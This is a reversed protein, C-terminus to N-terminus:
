ASGLRKLMILDTRPAWDGGEEKDEETIVQQGVLAYASKEYFRVARANSGLVKLWIREYGQEIVKGEALSLLTRALGSGHAAEHVYLRSVYAISGAKGKGKDQERPNGAASDSEGNFGGDVPLDLAEFSAPFLYQAPIGEERTQILGVIPGSPPADDGALAVHSVQGPLTISELLRERSLVPLFHRAINEAGFHPAYTSSYIHSLFSALAEADEPAARRITPTSSPTTTTITTM